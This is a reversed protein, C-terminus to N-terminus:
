WVSCCHSLGKWSCVQRNPLSYDQWRPKWNPSSQLMRACTLTSPIGYFCYNICSSPVEALGHPSHSTSDELGLVQCVDLLIEFKQKNEMYNWIEIVEKKWMSQWVGKESRCLVERDKGVASGALGNVEGPGRVNKRTPDVKPWEVQTSQILLCLPSLTAIWHAQPFNHLHSPNLTRQCCWRSCPFSFSLNTSLNGPPFQHDIIVSWLSLYVKVMNPYMHSLHLLCLFIFGQPLFRCFTQHAVLLVLSLKPIKIRMLM